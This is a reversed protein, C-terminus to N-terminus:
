FNLLVVVPPKKEAAVTKKKQQATGTIYRGALASQWGPLLNLYFKFFFYIGLEKLSSSSANGRM